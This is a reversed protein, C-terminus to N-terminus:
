IRLKLFNIFDQKTKIRAVKVGAAYVFVENRHQRYQYGNEDEYHTETVYGKCNDIIFEMDIPQEISEILPKNSVKIHLGFVQCYNLLTNVTVDGKNAYRLRQHVTNHVPTSSMVVGTNKVAAKMMASFQQRNIM